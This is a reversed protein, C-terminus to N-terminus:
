EIEQQEAERQARDATDPRESTDAVALIATAAADVTFRTDYLERAAESMSNWASPDLRVRRIAEALAVADGAPVAIGAGALEVIQGADTSDEVCVISPLAAQCYDVIKSPFSPVSVDPVTVAVGLHARRLLRRYDERPVPDHFTLNTLGTSRAAEQLALRSPGWGYVHIDAPDGREGLLRAAELLTEVGRGATLQGGFVVTFTDDRPAPDRTAPSEASWPPVDIVRADLHPHYAHLFDANRPSMVAVVDSASIAASEARRLWPSLQSPVRGIEVHHIPFFDWMVLVLTRAVGARRVRAPFGGTAVAISTFVCLDYDRHRIQRWTSTHLRAFGGLYATLARTRSAPAREPGVSWVAVGDTASAQRGRPRPQKTDLVVVDVVAGKQAMVEVLDDILWPNGGVPAFVSTVVLVRPGPRAAPDM